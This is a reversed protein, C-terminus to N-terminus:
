AKYRKTLKHIQCDSSYKHKWKGGLVKLIEPYVKEKWHSSFSTLVLPGGCDKCPITIKDTNEWDDRLKKNEKRLVSLESRLKINEDRLRRLEWENDKKEFLCDIVYDAISKEFAGAKDILMEKLDKPIRFSVTPNDRDYRNRM